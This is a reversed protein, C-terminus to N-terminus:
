IRLFLTIKKSVVSQSVKLRKAIKSQPLGVIYHLRFIRRTLSDEIAEIFIEIEECERKLVAIRNECQREIRDVKEWDIGIVATPAPYGKRYDLVTDRAIMASNGNLAYVANELDCIEMKKYTYEELLERTM